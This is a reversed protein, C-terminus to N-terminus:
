SAIRKSSWLKDKIKLLLIPITIGSLFAFLPMHFQTWVFGLIEAHFMVVIIMGIGKAIDIVENRKVTM